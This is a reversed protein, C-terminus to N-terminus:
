RGRCPRCNAVSAELSRDPRRGDLLDDVDDRNYGGFRERIDIDRLERPTVDM